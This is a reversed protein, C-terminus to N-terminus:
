HVQNDESSNAEDESEKKMQNALKQRFLGEFNIPNILVPPFGGRSALSSISERAYPFVQNAAVIEMMPQIENEPFDRLLFIGAQQVEALFATKDKLKAHAQLLLVLEYLTKEENIANYKVKIQVDIEPHETLEAFIQPSAPSEFSADKLYVQRIDFSPSPQKDTM